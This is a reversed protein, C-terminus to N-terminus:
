RVKNKDIITRFMPGIEVTLPELLSTLVKLQRRTEGAEYALADETRAIMKTIIFVALIGLLLTALPLIQMVMLTATDIEM